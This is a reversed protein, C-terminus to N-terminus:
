TLFCGVIIFCLGVSVELVVSVVSADDDMDM